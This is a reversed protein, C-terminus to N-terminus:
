HFLDPQISFPDPAGPTLCEHCFPTTAQIHNLHTKYLSLRTAEEKTFKLPEDHIEGKRGRYRLMPYPSTHTSTHSCTECRTHVVEWVVVPALNWYVPPTPRPTPSAPPQVADKPRKGVKQLFDALTLIPSPNM